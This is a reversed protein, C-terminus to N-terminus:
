ARRSPESAASAAIMEVVPVFLSDVVDCAHNLGVWHCRFRLGEEVVSGWAAHMWQDPTEPPADMVIVTWIHREPPGSENPGGGALREWTGIQRANRASTLGTEEYLERLAGATPEEGHDLGGKPLQIGGNPHEFVLLEVRGGVRRLVGACVKPVVLRAMELTPEGQASAQDM